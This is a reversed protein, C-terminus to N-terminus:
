FLGTKYGVVYIPVLWENDTTSAGVTGNGVNYTTGTSYTVGRRVTDGTSSISTMFCGHEKLTIMSVIQDIDNKRKFIWLLIDYLNDNVNVAQAPFSSTPNANTWLINGNLGGLITANNNVATKIENMDEAKVKNIDAVDANENIASKNSYTITSVAM